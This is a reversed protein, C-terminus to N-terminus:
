NFKILKEKELKKIIKIFKIPNTKTKEGIEALVVKISNALNKNYSESM